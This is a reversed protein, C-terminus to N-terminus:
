GPLKQFGGPVSGTCGKKAAEQLALMDENTFISRIFGGFREEGEPGWGLWSLGKQWVEALPHRKQRGQELVHKTPIASLQTGM